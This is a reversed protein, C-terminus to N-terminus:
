AGLRKRRKGRETRRLIANKRKSSPEELTAKLWGLISDFDQGGKYLEVQFSPSRLVRYLTPTGEVRFLEGGDLQPIEDHTVDFRAVRLEPDHVSLHNAIRDVTPAFKQCGGCWPSYFEVLLGHAHDGSTIESAFNSVNLDICKDCKLTPPSLEEGSGLAQLKMKDVKRRHSHLGCETRNSKGFFRGSREFEDVDFNAGSSSANLRPLGTNMEDGISTYGEDYLVNYPLHHHRIYEWVRSYTWYALPNLKWRGKDAGFPRSGGDDRGDYNHYEFELVNMDKREGGSSRRRGTIWM